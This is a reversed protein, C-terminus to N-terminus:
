VVKRLIARRSGGLVSPWFFITDESVLVSIDEAVNYIILVEEGGEGVCLNVTYMVSHVLVYSDEAVV